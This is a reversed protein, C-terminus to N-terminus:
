ATERSNMQEDVPRHCCIDLALGCSEFRNRLPAENAAHASRTPAGDDLLPETETETEAVAAPPFIRESTSKDLPNYHMELPEYFRAVGGIPLSISSINFEEEM